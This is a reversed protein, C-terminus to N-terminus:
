YTGGEYPNGTDFVYDDRHELLYAAKHRAVANLLTADPAADSDISLAANLARVFGEADGEAACITLAYSVHIGASLGGSARLAANYEKLAMDHDGGLEPPMSAYVSFALEHLAGSAYDPDLALAGRMLTVAAPVLAANNFDLPDSSFAALISAAAYYMLPVDVKRFPKLAKDSVARAQVTSDTGLQFDNEFFGPNRKEVFPSLLQFSRLYLSRARQVLSRREIYADDPLFFAEGDLYGTGYLLYLSAVTTANGQNRPDTALLLESVKMFSPLAQGALAPDPEGLFVDSAYTGLKTLVCSSLTLVLAAAFICRAVRGYSPCQKTRPMPVLIRMALDNTLEQGIRVCLVRWLMSYRYVIANM